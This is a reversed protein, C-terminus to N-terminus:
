ANHVYCVSVRIGSFYINNIHHKFIRANERNRMRQEQMVAHVVM